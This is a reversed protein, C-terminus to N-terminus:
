HGLGVGDRGRKRSETGPRERPGEWRKRERSGRWTQRDTEGEMERGRLWGQSAKTQDRIGRCWMPPLTAISLCLSLCPGSVLNVPRFPGPPAAAEGRAGFLSSGSRPVRLGWSAGTGWALCFFGPNIIYQSTQPQPGLPSATPSLPSLSGAADKQEIRFCRM